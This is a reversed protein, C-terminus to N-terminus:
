LTLFNSEVTRNIRFYHGPNHRRPIKRGSYFSERILQLITTYGRTVCVHQRLSGIQQKRRKARLLLYIVPFFYTKIAENNDSEYVKKEEKRKKKKKARKYYEVACPDTYNVNYKKECKSAPFDSFRGVHTSSLNDPLSIKKKKKLLYITFSIYRSVIEIPFYPIM